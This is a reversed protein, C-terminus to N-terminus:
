DQMEAAKKLMNMVLSFDPRRRTEYAVIEGNYLDIVPSLYLKERRRHVGDSGNGM